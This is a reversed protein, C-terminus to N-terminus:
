TEARCPEIYLAPSCLAGSPGEKNREDHCLWHSGEPGFNFVVELFHRQQRVRVLWLLGVLGCWGPPAHQAPKRPVLSGASVPKLSQALSIIIFICIAMSTHVANSAMYQKSEAVSGGMKLSQLQRYEVQMHAQHDQIYKCSGFTTSGQVDCIHVPALKCTSKAAISYRSKRCQVMVRLQCANHRASRQTGSSPAPM